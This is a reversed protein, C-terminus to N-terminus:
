NVIIQLALIYYLLVIQSYIFMFINYNYLMVTLFIYYMYIIVICLKECFMIERCFIDCVLIYRITQLVFIRYIMTVYIHCKIYCNLKAIQCIKYIYLHICAVYKTFNSFLAYYCGTKWGSRPLSNFDSKHKKECYLSIRLTANM